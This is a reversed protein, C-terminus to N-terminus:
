VHQKEMNDMQHLFLHLESLSCEGDIFDRFKLIRDLDGDQPHLMIWETREDKHIQPGIQVDTMRFLTIKEQGHLYWYLNPNDGNIKQLASIIFGTADKVYFIPVRNSTIPLLRKGLNTIVNIVEM